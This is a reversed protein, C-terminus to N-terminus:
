ADVREKGNVRAFARRYWAFRQGSAATRYAVRAPVQLEVETGAHKRSWIELRGRIRDARERMGTLGWRGTQSGKEAIEQDIGRGDDRVRVTLGATGYSVETEIKNAQSHLVANTMAERAIMFAEERVLPHLEVVKGETTCRLQTTAPVDLQEGAKALAVGLDTGSSLPIRLDKVRDRSEALVKQARDLVREM